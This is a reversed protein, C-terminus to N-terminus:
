GQVASMHGAFVRWGGPGEHWARTYRLPGSADVGDVVAAVEIRVSVVVVTGLRVVHREGPNMRTVRLRGSRHLALDDSKGVVRGGLATFVLRDDLVRDLAAVDGTLQGQRLAEEGALVPDTM